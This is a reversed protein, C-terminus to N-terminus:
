GYLMRPFYGGSTRSQLELHDSIAQAITQGLKDAAVNTGGVNVNVAIQSNVVGGGAGRLGGIGGFSGPVYAPLRFGTPVNFSVFNTQLLKNTNELLRVQERTNEAIIQLHGITPPPKHHGFLGGIIGGFTAGIAAGVGPIPIALQGVVAGISTGIGVATESGGEAAGILQGAFMGAAAIAQQQAQEKDFKDKAAKWKVLDSALKQAAAAEFPVGGGSSMIGQTQRENYVQARADEMTPPAVSYQAKGFSGQLFRGVGPFIGKEGFLNLGAGIQGTIYGAAPGLIQSSFLQGFNVRGSGTHRAQEIGKVLGDLGKQLLNNLENQVARQEQLKRTKEGVVYNSQQEIILQREDLDLGRLDLDYQRNAKEIEADLYPAREKDLAAQQQLLEVQNKYSFLLEDRKLKQTDLVEHIHEQLTAEPTEEASRRAIRGVATTFRLDQLRREREMNISAKALTERNIDGVLDNFQGRLVKGEPGTGPTEQYFRILLEKVKQLRTHANDADIGLDQLVTSSAKMSREFQQYAELFSGPIVANAGKANTVAAAVAGAGTTGGPFEKNFLGGSPSVFQGGAGAFMLSQTPLSITPPKGLSAATQPARVITGGRILYGGPVEPGGPGLNATPVGNEKIQEAVVGPIGAQFFGKPTHDIIWQLGSVIKDVTNLVTVAPSNIGTFLNTLDTKLREITTKLTDQQKNAMDTAATQDNLSGTVLDLADKFHTLIITGATAQRAGFLERMLEQAQGTQHTDILHQYAASVEKLIQDFAKLETGGSAATGLQVGALAEINAVSKPNGLRSILFRLAAGTQQGTVRGYRSEIGTIAGILAPNSVNGGPEAFVGLDPVLNQISQMLAEPSVAARRSIAATLNVAELGGVKGGTARNIAIIYDAVTSINTGFAKAGIAAAQLNKGMDAFSFQEQAFQQAAKAVENVNEGLDHAAQVIERRITLQDSLSNSGYIAQIRRVEAELETAAGISQFITSAIPYIIAAAGVFNALGAFRSGFRALSFLGGGAAAGGRGGGGRGFGFAPTGGPTLPPGQGGGGLWGFPGMSTPGGGLAEPINGQAAFFEPGFFSTQTFQGTPGLPGHASKARRLDAAVAESGAQAEQNAAAAAKKAANAKAKTETADQQMAAIQDKEVKAAMEAQFQRQQRISPPIVPYGGFIGQGTRAEGLYGQQQLSSILLKVNEPALNLARGLQGPYAIPEKGKIENIFDIADRTISGSGGRVRAMGSEGLNAPLWSPLWGGLYGRVRAMLGTRQGPIAFPPILGEGQLRAMAAAREGLPDEAEANIFRGTVEIGTGFMKPSVVRPQYRVPIRRRTAERELAEAQETYADKIYPATAGPPLGFFNATEVLARSLRSMRVPEPEGTFAYGKPIQALALALKNLRETVKVGFNGEAYAGLPGIAALQGAAPSITGKGFARRSMGLFPGSAMALRLGTRMTTVMNTAQIQPAVTAILNALTAAEAEDLTIDEKGSPLAGLAPYGMAPGNRALYAMARQTEGGEWYGLSGGRLLRTQPRRVGRELGAYARRAAGYLRQGEDIAAIDGPFLGFQAGQAAINASTPRRGAARALAELQAISAAANLGVKAVVAALQEWSRIQAKLIPGTLDEITLVTKAQAPKLRETEARYEAQARTMAKLNDLGSVVLGLQFIGEAINSPM